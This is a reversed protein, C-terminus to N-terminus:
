KRYAQNRHHTVQQEKPPLRHYDGYLRTLIADYGVPAQLRHGEFEVAVGSSVWERPFRNSISNYLSSTSGVFRSSEYPYARNMRDARALFWSKPLCGFAMAALRAAPRGSGADRVALHYGALWRRKRRYFRRYAEERDPEGDLPFIDIGVGPPTGEYRIGREVQVTTQDVVKVHPHRAAAEYPSVARYHKNLKERNYRQIFQEYDPRPMHLDIDDDWPIYGRHRVAGILTGYALYCILGREECFAAVDLLLRLGIQKIEEQTLERM